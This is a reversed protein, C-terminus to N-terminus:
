ARICHIEQGERESPRSSIWTPEEPRTRDRTGIYPYALQLSPKAASITSPYHLRPVDDMRLGAGFIDFGASYQTDSLSQKPSSATAKAKQRLARKLSDLTAM